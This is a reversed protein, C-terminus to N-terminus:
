LPITRRERASIEVAEFAAVGNLIEAATIPYPARRVIAAAFAELEAREIDTPEFTEVKRIGDLTTVALPEAGRREAPGDIEARGKTGHVQLRFVPATATLTILSATCGDALRFAVVTTDDMPLEHVRRTTIAHVDAIPGALHIITDILHIGMGALGGAPSEGPAVRWSAPDYRGALNSSFQTEVHLVTDLAGADIMRKLAAIAPLWRRNHGAAVLVGAREAAALAEAAAARTLAFPKEVFVPKGAQACAIVQEPHLSHPTALVVGDIGPDGLVVDLSAVPKIGLPECYALAAALDRTVAASFRVEGSRNQVSEVLVKGWRGLGVLALQIM